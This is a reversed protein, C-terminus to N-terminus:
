KCLDQITERCNERWGAWVWVYIASRPRKPPSPQQMLARGIFDLRLSLELNALEQTLLRSITPDSTQM